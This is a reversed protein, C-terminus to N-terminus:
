GKKKEPLVKESVALPLSDSGNAERESGVGQVGRAVGERAPWRLALCLQGLEIFQALRVVRRFAFIRLRRVMALPAPSLM